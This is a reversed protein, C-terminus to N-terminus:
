ERVKDGLRAYRERIMQRIMESRSIEQEGAWGDLVKLHWSPLTVEVGVTSSATKPLERKKGPLGGAM